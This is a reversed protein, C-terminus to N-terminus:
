QKPKGKGNGGKGKANAKQKSSAPADHEAEGPIQLDVVSGEQLKDAGTLVVPDGAKLGSTVVQSGAIEPGLKVPRIHLVGDSGVVGALNANQVAMVARQPV